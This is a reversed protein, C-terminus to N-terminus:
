RIDLKLRIDKELVIDCIYIFKKIDEWYSSCIYRIEIGYEIKWDFIGVM